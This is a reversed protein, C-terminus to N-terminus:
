QLQRAFVLELFLILGTIRRRGIGLHDHAAIAAAAPAIGQIAIGLAHAAVDNLAIDGEQMRAAIVANYEIRLVIRDVQRRSFLQAGFHARCHGGLAYLPRWFRRDSPRSM